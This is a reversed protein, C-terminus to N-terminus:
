PAECDVGKCGSFDITCRRTCALTGTPSSEFCLDDCTDGDFDAGDCEEGDELVGNGCFPTATPQPKTTAKATPTATPQPGATITATPTATEGPLATRTPGTATSTALPTRPAAPTRSASAAPSPTPPRSADCYPRAFEVGVGAFLADARPMTERVLERAECTQRRGVCEAIDDVRALAEVGTARCESALAAFGAGDAGTLLSGDLAGSGCRAIVARRFAVEAGAIRGLAAACAARADGGCAAGGAEDCARIARVCAGANVFTRLSVRASVRAIAHMCGVVATGADDTRAGDGTGGHDPLCALAARAAAGVAAIRVLEGARPIATALLREGRCRVIGSVCAGLVRADARGTALAPCVRALAAFGLAEGELLVDVPAAACRAGIRAALVDGRRGIRAIARECRVRASALCAPDRPRMEVCAAAAGVCRGLDSLQRALLAGAGSAVAYQCRLAARGLAAAAPHPVLLLVTVLSAVSRLAVRSSSGM